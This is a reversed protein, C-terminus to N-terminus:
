FINSELEPKIFTIGSNEDYQCKFIPIKEYPNIVIFDEILSEYYVYGPISLMYESLGSRGLKRKYKVARRKDENMDKFIPSQIMEIVEDIEHRYEKYVPSPIVMYSNIERFKRNIEDKKYQGVLTSDLYELTELVEKYFKTKEMNKTTFTEKILRMKMKEDLPGYTNKLALLSMEHITQDTVKGVGSCNKTYVYINTEVKLSWHRKRYCRGMRQFLGSLDSLETFLLDFDIDLSAEVVQTTLWIAPDTNTIQGFVM